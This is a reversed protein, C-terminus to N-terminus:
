WMSVDVRLLNYSKYGEGWGEGKFPSPAILGYFISYGQPETTFYFVCM